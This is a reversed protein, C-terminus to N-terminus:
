RNKVPTRVIVTLLLGLALVALDVSAPEPIQGVVSTTNGFNSFSAEGNVGGNLTILDDVGLVVAVPSFDATTANLVSSVGNDFVTLLLPKGPSPCVSGSFAAYVCLETNVQALGPFIPPDSALSVSFHIIEPPPPDVTYSLSYEVSQGSGVSFGDSSFSLALSGQLLNSSPTVEIEAPNVVTLPAMTGSSGGGSLVQFKFNTFTFTPSPGITCGSALAEYQALTGPQCVPPAAPIPASTAVRSIACTALLLVFLGTLSNM